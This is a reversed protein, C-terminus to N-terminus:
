QVFMEYLLVRLMFLNQTGHRLSLETDLSNIAYVAYVADRCHTAPGTEARLGGDCGRSTPGQPKVSELLTGRTQSVM